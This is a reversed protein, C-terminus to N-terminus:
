NRFNFNKLLKSIKLSSIEINSIQNSHWKYITEDDIDLLKELDILEDNNFKNIYKRTFTGLLLDMEKTGRHMSRYIIKKKLNEKNTM